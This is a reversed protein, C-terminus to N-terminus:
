QIDSRSDYTQRHTLVTGLYASSGNHPSAIDKARHSTKGYRHGQYQHDSNKDADAHDSQQFRYHGRM